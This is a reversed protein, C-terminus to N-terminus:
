AMRGTSHQLDRHIAALMDAVTTATVNTGAISLWSALDSWDQHPGDHAGYALRSFHACIVPKSGHNLFISSGFPTQGGSPFLDLRPDAKWEADTFTWIPPLERYDAFRGVLYFTEKSSPQTLTAQVELDDARWALTVGHRLAWARAAALEAEVIITTDQASVM